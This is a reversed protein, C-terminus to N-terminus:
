LIWEDILQEIQYGREQLFINVETLIPFEHEFEAILNSLLEVALTDSYISICRAYWQILDDQTIISRVKYGIQQLVTEITEKEASKCVIVVIDAPVSNSIAETAPVDLRLHKIQIVPGFNAWIDLGQDAANTAGARFIKAVSQLSDSPTELGIVSQIFSRFDQFIDEDPNNITVQIQVDLANILTTFLSYVIIEYAKDASKKLASAEFFTIFTHLDFDNIATVQLYDYADSVSALKQKIRHYIYNEVIGGNNSNLSALQTLFHPPMAHDGFVDDQYRASSTSINGVLRRSVEDRWVKSQLRYTSKDTPDISALQKRHFYLIEAIQIPKYNHVRGKKILSDLANKAVKQQENMLRVM